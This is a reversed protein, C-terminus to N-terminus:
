ALADGAQPAVFVLLGPRGGAGTSRTTVSVSPSGGPSAGCQVPLAIAVAVPTRQARHLADPRRVARLRAPDPTELQLMIRSKGGLQAVHDSQIEIRGAWLRTSDTPSFDCMWASPRM